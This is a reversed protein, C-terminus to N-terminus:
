DFSNSIIAIDNDVLELHLSATTTTTSLDSYYFSPVDKTLTTFDFYQPTSIGSTGESNTYSLYMFSNFYNTGPTLNEIHLSNSAAIDEYIYHTGDVVIHGV